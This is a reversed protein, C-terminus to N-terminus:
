IYIRGRDTKWGRTGASFRENAYAIRRYHEEKFENQPTSPDPDRRLWFQEIFSSKEDATSLKTFVAREDDTIIHLVDEDLWRRFHDEASAEKRQAAGLGTAAVFILFISALRLDSISGCPLRSSGPRPAPTPSEGSRLATSAGIPCVSTQM